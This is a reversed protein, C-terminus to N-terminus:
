LNQLQPEMFFLRKKQCDFNVKCVEDIVATEQQSRFTWGTQGRKGRLRSMLLASEDLWSEGIFGLLDAASVSLAAAWRAAAVRRKSYEFDSIQHEWQIEDDCSKSGRLLPSM